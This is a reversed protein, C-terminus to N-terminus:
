AFACGNDFAQTGLQRKPSRSAIRASKLHTSSVKSQDSTFRQAGASFCANVNVGVSLTSDETFKAHINKDHPFFSAQEVTLSVTSSIM